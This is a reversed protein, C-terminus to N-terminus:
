TVTASKRPVVLEFYISKTRMQVTKIEVCILSFYLDKIQCNM